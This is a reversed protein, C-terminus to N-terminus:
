AQVVALVVAGHAAIALCVAYGRGCQATITSCSRAYEVLSEVVCEVLGLEIARVIASIFRVIVSANMALAVSRSAYPSASPSVKSLLKEVTLMSFMRNKM